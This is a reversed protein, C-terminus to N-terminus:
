KGAWRPPLSATSPAHTAPRLETLNQRACRWFHGIGQPQPRRDATYPPNSVCFCVPFAFFSPWLAVPWPSAPGAKSLLVTLASESLSQLLCGNLHSQDLRWLQQRLLRVSASTPFMQCCNGDEAPNLRRCSGQNFSALQVVANKAPRVVLYVRQSSM